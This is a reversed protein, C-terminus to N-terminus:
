QISSKTQYFVGLRVRGFNQGTAKLGALSSGAVGFPKGAHFGDFGLDVGWKRGAFFHLGGGYM